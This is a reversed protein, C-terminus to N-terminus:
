RKDRRQIKRFNESNKKNIREKIKELDYKIFSLESVVESLDKRNRNILVYGRYLLYFLLVIGLYIFFDVGRKVGVLKAFFFSVGPVLILIIIATWIFFWFLFEGSLLKKNKYQLIIRSLAFLAFIFLIIQIIEM